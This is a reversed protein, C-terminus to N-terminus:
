KTLLRGLGHVWSTRVQDLSRGHAGHALDWSEFSTLADVLGAVDNPDSAGNRDATAGGLEAAFHHRIQDLFTARARALAPAMRPHDYARSRALRAIPAIADYLRVRADVYREIRETLSGEGIDPIEFLPAYRTFYREITQDNLDGLGDFYRFVSSVSVGARAAIAEAGPSGTGEALLDVLADVVAERNRARRARRGDEIATSTEPM